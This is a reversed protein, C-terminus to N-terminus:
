FHKGAVEVRGNGQPRRAQSFAQRVGLRSCVTRFWAGAFQPGQDSYIITPIGHIYWARELLLDATKEATLNTTTTPIAVLFGTLRDVLLIFCDYIDGLWTTQPLSFIDICVSIMAHPLITTMHIPGKLAWHPPESAQCINCTKKVHQALEKPSQPCGFDYRNTMEIVLKKIGPHNLLIHHAAAVKACM